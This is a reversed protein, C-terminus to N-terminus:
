LSLEMIRNVTSKNMDVVYSLENGRTITYPNRMGNAGKVLKSVLVFIKNGKVINQDKM